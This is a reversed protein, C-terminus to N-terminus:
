CHCGHTDNSATDPAEELLVVGAPVGATDTTDALTRRCLHRQRFKNIRDGVDINDDQKLMSTVRDYFLVYVYCNGDYAVDVHKTSLHVLKLHKWQCGLVM